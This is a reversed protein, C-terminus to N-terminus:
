FIKAKILINAASDNPIRVRKVIFIGKRVPVRSCIKLIFDNIESEPHYGLNQSKTKTVPICQGSPFTCVRLFNLTTIKFCEYTQFIM